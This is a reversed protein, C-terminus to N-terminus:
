INKVVKFFLFMRLVSLYKDRVVSVLFIKSSLVVDKSWYAKLFNCKNRGMFLLLAIFTYMENRTSDTWRELPLDSKDYKSIVHHACRNTETTFVDM